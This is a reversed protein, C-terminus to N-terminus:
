KDAAKPHEPVRFTYRQAEIANPNNANPFDGPKHDPIGNSTILRFGDKTEITAANKPLEAKSATRQRPPRGHEPQNLGLLPMALAALIPLAPLLRPRTM